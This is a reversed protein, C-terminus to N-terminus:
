IEMSVSANAHPGDFRKMGSAVGFEPYTRSLSAALAESLSRRIVSLTNESAREVPILLAVCNRLQRVRFMPRGRADKVVEDHTRRKPVRGCSTAALLRRIVEKAPPRPKLSRILRAQQITAQRRGPDELAEVLDHGWSEHLELPSTFADVIVSPLRALKLLRSVQAASIRLARAIDDQSQVIGSQLWRAYSKGREYPSLDRRLRNESDMAILAEMDTMERLEVRLEKGLLRAVFLRRAGCIIEVDFDPNGSLRRGLAPVYQGHKIFSELEARCTEETLSCELRDHMGWVRCRFPNMPVINSM